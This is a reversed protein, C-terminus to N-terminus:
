RGERVDAEFAWKVILDAELSARENVTAELKLYAHWADDSVLKRLQGQVRRVRASLRRFSRNGLLLGDLTRAVAEDDRVIKATLKPDEDLTVGM